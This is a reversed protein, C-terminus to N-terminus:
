NKDNSIVGGYFTIDMIHYYYTGDKDQGEYHGGILIGVILVLLTYLVTLLKFHKQSWNSLLKKGNDLTKM